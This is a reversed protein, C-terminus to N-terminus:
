DLRIPDERRGAVPAIVTFCSGRGEASRLDLQRLKFLRTCTWQALLASGIAVMSPLPRAGFEILTMNIALLCSLAAIQFYRADPLSRRRTLSEGPM